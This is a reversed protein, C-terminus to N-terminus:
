NKLLIRLAVDTEFEPADLMTVGGAHEFSSKQIVNGTKTDIWEAEYKGGPIDLSLAVAKSRESESADKPFISDLAGGFDIKEVIATKSLKQFLRDEFLEAKIGRGKGDPPVLWDSPIIQKKLGRGSAKLQLVAGGMGQYFEMKIEAAMGPKLRVFAKDETTGHDNWNEIMKKGNVWLRIGDDSETYLTDIGPERPILKGTWRIAYNFDGGVQKSLYVGYAKGPDALVRATMGGPLSGELVSQAPKMRPLDFGEVFKKLVAFQGRIVPGGGGPQTSPFQFSGNEHGAVFSYDLHNFLAGGSLIFNWAELRYPEDKVGAFGTENDGLAKNLRLNQEAAMTSAYHFNFISVLPDPETIEISNNAINQSILHKKPLTKETEVIIESIHRQWADTVGFYPENCIEYYLNDYPNLETVIKRVMDEQVKTVDDHQLNLVETRPISGIGNINNRANLPSLNWMSDDYYVCFLDLEVVVSRRNAQGVFDRLRMFYSKDWRSLDFKNGGNFYGPEVSRAWPCIFKGSDPALTNRTINFASPNECYVGSFTRTLNLGKAQLENLYPTYDFDLNLVAGYHETSGVLVAPNGQFLFYHPNDPNLKLPETRTCSLVLFGATMALLIIPHKGQIPKMISESKQFGISNSEREM